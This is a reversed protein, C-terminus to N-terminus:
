CAWAWPGMVLRLGPPRTPGVGSTCSLWTSRARDPVVAWQPLLREHPLASEATQAQRDRGDAVAGHADVQAVAGAVLLLADRGDRAGVLASHREEVGSLAVPPPLVFHKEAARHLCEPVLDHDGGFEAEPRVPAEVTSRRADALHDVVAEAIEVDVVDVDHVLMADVRGYRYLVDGAGDLFGDVCALDTVEAEALGTGLGDPPGVGDLRDGDQLGLVGEELPIDFLEEGDEAFEADAEHGVGWQAAAEEGARGHGGAGVVDSVHAVVIGAPLRSGELLVDVGDVPEGLEGCRLLGRDGLEGKGPNQGLAVLDDGDGTRAASRVRAASSRSRM